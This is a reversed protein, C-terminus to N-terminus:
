KNQPLQAYKVAFRIILVVALVALIANWFADYDVRVTTYAVSSGSSWKCVVSKPVSVNACLILPVRAPVNWERVISTGCSLSVTANHDSYVTACIQVPQYPQTSVVTSHSFVWARALPVLLVVM